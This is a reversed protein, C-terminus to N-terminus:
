INSIKSIKLGSSKTECTQDIGFLGPVGGQRWLPYRTNDITRYRDLYKIVEKMYGIAASKSDNVMLQISKLDLHDSWENKKQMFGMETNKRNANPIYRANAYFCIAAKLGFEMKYSYGQYTYDLGGDLLEQYNTEANNELLDYYFIDGLQPKIDFEQAQLIFKTLEAEALNTALIIGLAAFDEKVVLATM